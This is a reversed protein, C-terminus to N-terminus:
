YITSKGYGHVTIESGKDAMSLIRRMWCVLVFRRINYVAMSHYFCVLKLHWAHKPM